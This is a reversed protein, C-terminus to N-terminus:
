ESLLITKAASFLRDLTERELEYYIRNDERRARVLGADLLLSM